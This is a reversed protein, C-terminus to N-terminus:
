DYFLLWNQDFVFCFKSKYFFYTLHVPQQCFNHFFRALLSSVGQKGLYLIRMKQCVGDDYFLSEEEQEDCVSCRGDGIGEMAIPKGGVLQQYKGGTGLTHQRIGAGIEGHRGQVDIGIIKVAQGVSLGHVILHGAVQAVVLQGNEAKM